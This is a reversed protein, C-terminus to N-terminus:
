KSRFASIGFVTIAIVMLPFLIATWVAVRDRIYVAPQWAKELPEILVGPWVCERPAKTGTGEACSVFGRTNTVPGFEACYQCVGNLCTGQHNLVLSENVTFLDASLM